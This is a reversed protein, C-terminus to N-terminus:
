AELKVLHGADRLLDTAAGHIDLYIGPITPAGPQNRSGHLEDLSDGMSAREEGWWIAFRPARLIMHHANAPLFEGTHAGPEQSYRRLISRRTEDSNGLTVEYADPSKLAHSVVSYAVARKWARSSAPGVGGDALLKMIKLDSLDFANFSARGEVPLLFGRRRWDRQM